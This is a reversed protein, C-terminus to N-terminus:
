ELHLMRNELGPDQQAAQTARSNSTDFPEMAEAEQYSEPNQCFKTVTM